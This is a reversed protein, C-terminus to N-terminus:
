EEMIVEEEEVVFGNEKLLRKYDQLEKTLTDVKEQIERKDARLKEILNHDAELEFDNCEIKQKLERADKNRAQIRKEQSKRQKEQTEFKEEMEKIKKEQELRQKDKEALQACLEDNNFLENYREVNVDRVLYELKTLHTRMPDQESDTLGIVMGEEDCRGYLHFYHNQLEPFHCGCLRAIMEQMLLQACTKKNTHFTKFKIKETKPETEHGLQTIHIVWFGKKHLKTMESGRIFSTPLSLATAIDILREGFSYNKFNGPKTIRFTSM